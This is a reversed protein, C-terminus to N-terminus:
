QYRGLKLKGDIIPLAAYNQFLSPWNKKDQCSKLRAVLDEEVQQEAEQILLSSGFGGNKILAFGTKVGSNSVFRSVNETLNAFAVGEPSRYTLTTHDRPIRLISVTM